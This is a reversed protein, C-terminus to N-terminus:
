DGNPNDGGDSQGYDRAREQYDGDATGRGKTSSYSLAQSIILDHNVGTLLEYYERAVLPRILDTTAVTITRITPLRIVEAIISLMGSIAASTARKLFINLMMPKAERATNM